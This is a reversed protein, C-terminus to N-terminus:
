AEVKQTLITRAHILNYFVVRSMESKMVSEKPLM